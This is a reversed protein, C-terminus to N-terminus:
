NRVIKLGVQMRKVFKEYEFQLNPEGDEGNIKPIFSAHTPTSKTEEKEEIEFAENSITEINPTRSEIEHHTAAVFHHFRFCFRSTNINPCSNTM